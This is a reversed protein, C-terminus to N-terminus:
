TRRHDARWQTVARKIADPKMQEGVARATLAAFEADSAFRLAAVQKPTLREWDALQAPTLLREARLREELTIIRDQLATTYSRSSLILAFVAVLAGAMFLGAGSASGRLSAAAGACAMVWGAAAVATLIPRHVHSAYSQTSM